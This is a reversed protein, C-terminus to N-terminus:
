AWRYVEDDGVKITECVRYQAARVVDCPIYAHVELTEKSSIDQVELIHREYHGSCVGELMDLRAEVEDSTVRYVEGVVPLSLHGTAETHAGKPVMYPFGVDTLLFEDKTVANSILESADLLSNNWNGQKLSGYVFFLKSM